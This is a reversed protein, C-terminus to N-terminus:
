HRQQRMWAEWREAIALIKRLYTATCYIYYPMLITLVILLVSIIALLVIPLGKVLELATQGAPTLTYEHM